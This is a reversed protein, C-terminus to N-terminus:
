IVAFGDPKLFRRISELAEHTPGDPLHELVELCYVFDFAAIPLTRSDGTIKARPWRALKEEAEKRLSSTPEYLTVSVEPRSQLCQRLLEGDGGGFDLIEVARNSSRSDLVALADRFRRRHIWRKIPNPDNVTIDVYPM